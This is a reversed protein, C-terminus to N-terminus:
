FAAKRENAAQFGSGRDYKLSEWVETVMTKLNEAEVTHSVQLNKVLEKARALEEPSTALDQQDKDDPYLAAIM